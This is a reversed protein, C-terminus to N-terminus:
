GNPELEGIGGEKFTYAKIAEGEIVSSVPATQAPLKKQFGPLLNRNILRALFPTNAQKFVKWSIGMGKVLTPRTVKLANALQRVTVQLHSNLVERVWKVQDPSLPVKRARRM